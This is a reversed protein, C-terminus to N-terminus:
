LKRKKPDPLELAANALGMLPSTSPAPLAVLSTQSRRPICAAVGIGGTFCNNTDIGYRIMVSAKDGKMSKRHDNLKNQTNRLEMLNIETKTEICKMKLNLILLDKLQNDNIEDFAKGIFALLEEKSTTM